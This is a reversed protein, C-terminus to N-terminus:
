GVITHVAYRVYTFMLQTAVNLKNIREIEHIVSAYMNWLISINVTICSIIIFAIQM